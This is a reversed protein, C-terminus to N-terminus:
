LACRWQEWPWLCWWGHGCVFVGHDMAALSQAALGHCRAAVVARQKSLSQCHVGCLVPPCKRALTPVASDRACFASLQARSQQAARVAAGWM